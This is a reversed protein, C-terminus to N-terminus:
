PHVRPEDLVRLDVHAHQPLFGHIGTGTEQEMKEKAVIADVLAWLRTAQTVAALRNADVARYSMWWALGIAVVLTAWLIDRIAFRM